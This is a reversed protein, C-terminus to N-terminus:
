HDDADIEADWAPAKWRLGLRTPATEKIEAQAKSKKYSSQILALPQIPQVGPHDDCHDRCSQEQEECSEDPSLPLWIRQCIKREQFRAVDDDERSRNEDEPEHQQHNVYENGAKQPVDLIISRKLDTLGKGPDRQRLEDNHPQDGLNDDM